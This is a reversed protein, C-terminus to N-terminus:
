CYPSKKLLSFIVCQTWMKSVISIPNFSISNELINILLYCNYTQRSFLPQDYSKLTLNSNTWVIQLTTVGSLHLTTLYLTMTKPLLISQWLIGQSWIYTYELCLSCKTYNGYYWGMSAYTFIIFNRFFLVILM